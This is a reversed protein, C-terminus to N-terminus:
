PQMSRHRLSQLRGSAPTLSSGFSPHVFPEKAILFWREGNSETFQSYGGDFRCPSLYGDHRWTLEMTGSTTDFTVDNELWKQIGVSCYAFTDESLFLIEELGGKKRWTTGILREPLKSPDQVGLLVRPGEEVPLTGKERQRKLLQVEGLLEQLLEVEVNGVSVAEVARQQLALKAVMSYNSVNDALTAGIVKSLEKVSNQLFTPQLRSSYEYTYYQNLDFNFSTIEDKILVIKKDARMAWGLELHVNPNHSSMDCLVLDAQEIKSWVGETVLRTSYDDDDRQPQLGAQSIAPVILGQYVERWHASDNQYKTLDTERVTFPM